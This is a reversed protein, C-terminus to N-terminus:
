IVEALVDRLRSELNTSRYRALRQNQGAVIADRLTYDQDLRGLLEAVSEWRREHILVGSGDLTEPIAGAACALVPLGFTMAELLPICFGEHESVCVFVDASRYASFLEENSVAGAFHFADLGLQRAQAKMMTYYGTLGDYAGVHIFRSDPNIHRHYYAFLRILDHIAKNPACRGVFLLTTGAPQLENLRASTGNGQYRDLDLVIPLVRVEPYGMSKLEDANFRSDALNVEAVGALVAAQKRGLRLQEAMAPQVQDFFKSPTINHYLLVKRCPASAFVDNAPSGISLHLLVVDSPQVIRLFSDLTRARNRFRPSIAHPEAFIEGGHGWSRFFKQFLRAENSIADGERFGAVLQHIAPM